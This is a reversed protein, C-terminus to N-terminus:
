EQNCYMFHFYILLFFFTAKQTHSYRIQYFHESANRLLRSQVNEPSFIEIQILCCVVHDANMMSDVTLIEFKM